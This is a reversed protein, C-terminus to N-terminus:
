KVRCIALYFLIFLYSYFQDQQNSLQHTLMNLDSFTLKHCKVSIFWVRTLHKEDQWRVTMRFHQKIQTDGVASYQQHVDAKASRM